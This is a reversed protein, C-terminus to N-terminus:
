KLVTLTAAYTNSGLSLGAVLPTILQVILTNAASVRVNGIALGSPLSVNPNLVVQDTALLGTVTLTIEKTGLTVVGPVLSVTYQTLAPISPKHLIVGLGSAATWDSQVQAAPITPLNTLDLYSGSTAVTSLTPRGTLDAYAGSTAVTALTPKGTLDGYVGSFLTPKNLIASPGSSASWDAPVQKVYSPDIKSM